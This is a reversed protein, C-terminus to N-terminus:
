AAKDPKIKAVKAKGGISFGTLKGSKVQDWVKKELVHIVIIWSGATVIEKGVVTDIPVIYSEYLEFQPRFDKHMLGLKTTSNYGALFNHAAKRIVESSIIDGQADVVEPVLVVGTITQEEANAKTIPVFYRKAVSEETKEAKEQALKKKEDPDTLEKIGSEGLSAPNAKGGNDLDPATIAKSTTKQEAPVARRSRRERM